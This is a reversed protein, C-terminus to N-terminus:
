VELRLGRKFCTVTGHRDLGLRVALDNHAWARCRFGLAELRGVLERASCGRLYGSYEVKVVDFLRLAEAENVVDWECGKCDMKLARVRFAGLDVGLRSAEEILTKLRMSRVRARLRGPGYITASGDLPGSYSIDVFGDQGAVAANIPIIRPKLEPNLELNRLMAEFNEPVPEVAVVVVGRRAYYLATDGVYAGVDFVVWGSLDFDLFHVDHLWTEAVTFPDIEALRSGDPMEFWCKCNRDIVFKVLGWMYFTVSDDSCEFGSFLADRYANALWAYVWPHLRAKFGCRFTVDIGGRELGREALVYTLGAQLWNRFLHRSCM